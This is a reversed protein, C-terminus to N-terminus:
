PTANPQLPPVHPCLASLSRQRPRLKWPLPEKLCLARDCPICDDARCCRQVVHRVLHRDPCRQACLEAQWALRCVLGPSRRLANFAHQLAGLTLLTHQGVVTLSPLCARSHELSARRLRTAYSLSARAPCQRRTVSVLVWNGVAHPQRVAVLPLRYASLSFRRHWVM